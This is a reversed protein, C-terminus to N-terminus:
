NHSKSVYVKAYSAVGEFDVFIRKGKFKSDIAITKRYCSVFQYVTEDFYNYPLMINTHPLSVTEFNSDDWDKAIFEEEFDNCYEWNNNLNIITSSM